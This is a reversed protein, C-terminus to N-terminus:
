RYQKVTDLTKNVKRFIIKRKKRRQLTAVNSQVSTFTLSKNYVCPIRNKKGELFNRKKNNSLEIVSRGGQVQILKVKALASRHFM